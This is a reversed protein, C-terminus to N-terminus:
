SPQALADAEVRLVSPVASLSRLIDAHSQGRQAEVQYVHTDLSVSSLYVMRAHIRQSIDRLFAADRYPVTQKFKVIVRLAQGDAPNMSTPAPSNQPAPNTALVASSSCASMALGTLLIATGDRWRSGRLVASGIQSQLSSIRKHKQM